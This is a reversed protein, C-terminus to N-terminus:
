PSTKVREYVKHLFKDYHNWPARKDVELMCRVFEDETIFDPDESSEGFAKNLSNELRKLAADDDTAIVEHQIQVVFRALDSIRVRAAHVALQRLLM